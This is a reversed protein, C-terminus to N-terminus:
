KEVQTHPKRSKWAHYKNRLPEEIIFTTFVAIMFARGTEEWRGWKWGQMDNLPYQWLYWSYSIRGMFRFFRTELIPNGHISGMVVLVVLIGTLMELWWGNDPFHVLGKEELWWGQAYVNAFLGLLAGMGVWKKTFVAPTPLLRASCGLFMKWANTSYAWRFDIWTGFLISQADFNWASYIRLLFSGLILPVLVMARRSSSLPLVFSILLSWFIYFQEEVALSWTNFFVGDNGLRPDSPKKPLFNHVYFFAALSEENIMNSKEDDLTM